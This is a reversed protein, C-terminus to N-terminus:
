NSGIILLARPGRERHASRASFRAPLTRCTGTTTAVINGNIAPYSRIWNHNGEGLGETSELDPFTGHCRSPGISITGINIEIVFGDIIARSSMTASQLRNFRDNRSLPLLSFISRQGHCSGWEREREEEGLDKSAVPFIRRFLTNISGGNFELIAFRWHRVNFRGRSACHGSASLTQRGRRGAQCVNEKEEEGSSV